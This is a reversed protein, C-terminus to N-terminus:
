QILLDKEPSKKKKKKLKKDRRSPSSLERKAKSRRWNVDLTNGLSFFLFAIEISNESACELGRQNSQKQVALRPLLLNM